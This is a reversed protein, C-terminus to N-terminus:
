GRPSGRIRAAPDDTVDGNRRHEGDPAVGDRGAKGNRMRMSQWGMSGRARGGEDESRRLM